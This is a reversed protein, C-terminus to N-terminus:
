PRAASAGTGTSPPAARGLSVSQQEEGLLNLLPLRAAGCYYCLDGLLVNVGDKLVGQDLGPLGCLWGWQCGSERHQYQQCLLQGQKM